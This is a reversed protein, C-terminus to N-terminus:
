SKNQVSGKEPGRIEIIRAGPRTQEARDAFKKLSQRLGPLANDKKHFCHIV